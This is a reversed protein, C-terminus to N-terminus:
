WRARHSTENEGGEDEGEERGRGAARLHLRSVCLFLSFPRLRCLPAPFLQSLLRLAEALADGGGAGLALSLHLRAPDTAGGAHLPGRPIPQEYEIIQVSRHTVLSMKSQM